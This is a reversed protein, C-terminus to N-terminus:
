YVVSVIALVFDLRFRHTGVLQHGCNEHTTQFTPLHQKSQSARKLWGKSNAYM